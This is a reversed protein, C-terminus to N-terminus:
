ALARKFYAERREREAKRWGKQKEQESQDKKGELYASHERQGTNQVGGEAEWWSKAGKVRGEHPLDIFKASQIWLWL